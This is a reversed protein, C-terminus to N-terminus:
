RTRKRKQRALPQDGDTPPIDSTLTTTSHNLFEYDEYSGDHTVHQVLSDDMGFWLWSVFRITLFTEFLDFHKSQSRTSARALVGVSPGQWTSKM